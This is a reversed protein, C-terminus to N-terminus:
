TQNTNAGSARAAESLEKIWGTTVTSSEILITGPSASGLAGREALWVSRSATDDALMSVIFDAGTAADRPSAALRAGEAVLSAAKDATRNYVTLPFGGALLRRAMGSGMLGLGLFAVRPPSSTSTM